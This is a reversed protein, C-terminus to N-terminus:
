FMLNCGRLASGDMRGAVTFSGDAFVEGLDNTAIFSCSYLNALDIINLAGKGSTAVRYPDYPDRVLVQMWPPCRFIGDAASYAQSLLETMGYESHVAPLNFAQRLIGHLEERILERRRGKMGGTEMVVCDSLDLGAHNEAMEWLAFSVGLLLKRRPGRYAQWDSILKDQNFRYFGGANQANADMWNKVMYVLSSHGRELYSPLLAFVVYEELPGYVREFGRKISQEYIATDAVLHRSPNSGTTGSSEFCVAAHQESALIDHTKFLEIPLFPLKTLDRSNLGHHPWRSAFQRFPEV